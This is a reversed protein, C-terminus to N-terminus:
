VKKGPLFKGNIYERCGNFIKDVVTDIPTPIHGEPFDEERLSFYKIIEERLKINRPDNPRHNLRTKTFVHRMRRMLDVERWGQINKDIGKLLRSHDMIGYLRIVSNENIWKGLILTHEIYEKTIPSGLKIQVNYGRSKYFPATEFESCGVLGAPLTPFVSRCRLLLERLENIEELILEFDLNVDVEQAIEKRCLFQILRKLM